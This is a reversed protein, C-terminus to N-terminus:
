SVRRVVDLFIAVQEPNGISVRICNPAGWAGLPRVSVGQSRLREALSFGDKGADFFVFNAATPVVRFGLGSLGKELIEAQAVNNSVTHEVHDQDDIAAIAAAQAMSSVAYTDARRACYGIREAPGIGYGIRLGALGHVKSFSRLVVVNAGRHVYELSRSYEVKRLESFRLAFEYYAEDLVVVVHAPVAAVFEDVVRAEVMTGTPNNPNALLVLRTEPTIARLIADLDFGDNRLPTEILQAGCAQVVMRYVIFSIASTVADLKPGLLTRCLLSLMGACGATVLVQEPPFNHLSCIRDRLQLCHDDPYVHAWASARQMAAVARPSPGFPNENSDLKILRKDNPDESASPHPSYSEMDQAAKSVPDSFRGM